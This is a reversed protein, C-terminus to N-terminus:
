KPVKNSRYRAQMVRVFILPLFMWAGITALGLMSANSTLTGWTRYDAHIKMEYLVSMIQPWWVTFFLIPLGVYWGLFFSSLVLRAPRKQGSSSSVAEPKWGKAANAMEQDRAKFELVSRSQADINGIIWMEPSLDSGKYFPTYDKGGATITPASPDGTIEVQYGKYRFATNVPPASRVPIRMRTIINSWASRSKVM